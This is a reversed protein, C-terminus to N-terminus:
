GGRELVQLVGLKLPQQRCNFRLNLPAPLSSGRALSGRFWRQGASFRSLYTVDGLPLCIENPRRELRPQLRRGNRPCEAYRKRQHVADDPRCFLSLTLQVEGFTM